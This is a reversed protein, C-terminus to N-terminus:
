LSFFRFQVLNTCFGFQVLNFPLLSFIYQPVRVRRNKRSRVFMFDTYRLVCKWKAGWNRGIQSRYWDRGIQEFLSNAGVTEAEPNIIYSELHM